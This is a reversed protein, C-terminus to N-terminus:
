PEVSRTLVANAQLMNELDEPSLHQLEEIFRAMEEDNEEEIQTQMIVLALESITPAEFL